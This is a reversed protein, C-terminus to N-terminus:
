RPSGNRPLIIRFIAGRPHAESVSLQGDHRAVIMRCIALGLGMGHPKTTVFADFLESTKEPNLGPGRDEVAITVTDSGNLETAIKLMRRGNVSDMAEIANNVLIVIAEQLQGKHGIIHPLESTLQVSAQVGHNKIEFDLTRLTELALNNLDVPEKTPEARGFLERINDFIQNAHHGADVTRRVASVAKEISPPNQKLFRIAAGGFSVIGTLPQRVEHAISAALAELNMLKNDQERRLMANSHALRVYLWTIEALLVILVISSTVLSYIRGAYFGISFRVSPLLGSFALEGILVLAVVILWQDLVSRKRRLLLVGLAAATVFITFSIPYVVLPSIRNNGLIIRPLFGAGATALWTLVCVLGILVTTAWGIASLTSTESIATTQPLTRCVAYGLLAMAFGFHWFIFLWSGTQINAGLLGTASFAGSFTLAHPIVILATFLYGIALVFLARSHSISFQAFLLVATILDTIFVIADLSPFFANLEALPRAAFPAVSAFGILALAAVAGAAASQRGTPPLDLLWIPIDGTENGAM